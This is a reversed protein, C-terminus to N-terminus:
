TQKVRADVKDEVPCTMTVVRGGVFEIFAPEISPSAEMQLMYHNEVIKM